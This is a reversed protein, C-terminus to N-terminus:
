CNTDEKGLEVIDVTGIIYFLDRRVQYTEYRSGAVQFKRSLGVEDTILFNEDKLKELFHYRQEGIGYQSLMQNLVKVPIWIFNDDYIVEMGNGKGNNKPQVSWQKIEARVIKVFDAILDDDFMLNGQLLEHFDISEPLGAMELMDIGYSEWFERFIKFVFCLWATDANAEKGMDLFKKIEDFNKECYKAFHFLVVGIEDEGQKEWSDETNFFEEDVFLNIARKKRAITDSFIVAPSSIAFGDETIFEGNLIGNAISLYTQIKQKRKYQSEGYGSCADLIVVEDKMKLVDNQCVAQVVQRKRNFVQLYHRLRKMPMEKLIVFNLFIEPKIGAEWLLSSLMGGVLYLMILIRSKWDAINRIKEFYKEPCLIKEEYNPFSKNRIPLELLGENERFWFTEASLFEKRFWGALAPIRVVGAKEIKSAFFSYLADQIKSKPIQENFLVGKKILDEYIRKGSLQPIEEILWFDATKFYVGAYKQHAEVGSMQFRFIEFDTVLNLSFRVVSETGDDFHKILEFYGSVATLCSSVEKKRHKRRERESREIEMRVADAMYHNNAIVTQSLNQLDNGLSIMQQMAIEPLNPQGTQNHINYNM